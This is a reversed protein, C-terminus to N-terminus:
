ISSFNMFFYSGFTCCLCALSLLKRPGFRDILMGVPLQMPSYAFYYLVALQGFTTASIHGFAESLEGQLTGPLIRLLFEYCYFFAAILCVTVGFIFHKRSKLIVDQM